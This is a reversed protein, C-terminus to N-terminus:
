GKMMRGGIRSWLIRGGGSTCIPFRGGVMSSEGVTGQGWDSCAAIGLFATLTPPNELNLLGMANGNDGNCGNLVSGSLCCVEFDLSAPTPAAAMLSPPKPLMPTTSNSSIALPSAVASASLSLTWTQYLYPSLPPSSVHFHALIPPKPQHIPLSTSIRGDARSGTLKQAM